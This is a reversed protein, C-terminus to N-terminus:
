SLPPPILSVIVCMCFSTPQCTPQVGPEGRSHVERDWVCQGYGVVAIVGFITFWFLFGATFRLLLIFTLSILM